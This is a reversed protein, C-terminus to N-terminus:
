QETGQIGVDVRESLFVNKKNQISIFYINLLLILHIKKKNFSKSARIVKKNTLLKRFAMLM